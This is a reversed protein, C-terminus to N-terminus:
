GDSPEELAIALRRQADDAKQALEHVRAWAIFAWGAVDALEEAIEGLLEAPLRMFSEDRYTERGAILRKRVSRAFADFGALTDSAAAGNARQSVDRM